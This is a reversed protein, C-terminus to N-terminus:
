RRDERRPRGRKRVGIPRTTSSGTTRATEKIAAIRREKSLMAAEAAEEEWDGNWLYNYTKFDSINNIYWEAKDENCNGSKPVM